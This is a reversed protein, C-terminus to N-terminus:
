NLMDMAKFSEYCNGGVIIHDLLNIGMIKCAENLRSTTNIDEESPTIDGSPHNHAVIISHANNLLARKMVERPHVVTSSLCGHSVEHIGVIDGHTDLCLLYFYEDSADSLGLDKLLEFVDDPEYAGRGCYECTNDRVLTCKMIDVNM